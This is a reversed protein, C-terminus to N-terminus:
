AVPKKYRADEEGCFPCYRMRFYVYNGVGSRLGKPKEPNWDEIYDVCGGPLPVDHRISVIGTIFKANMQCCRTEGQQAGSPIVTPPGPDHGEIPVWEVGEDEEGGLVGLLGGVGLLVLAVSVVFLGWLGSFGAYAAWAFNAMMSVMWARVYHQKAMLAVGILTGATAAWELWIVAEHEGV